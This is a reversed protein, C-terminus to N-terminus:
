SAGELTASRKVSDGLTRQGIAMLLPILACILVGVGLTQLVSPWQDSPARFLFGALVAGVNGGAGVIGAVAGLNGRHILPVIAYAAGNAMKVFLGLVLLAPVAVAVSGVRGFLLLFIGEGLLVAALWGIRAALGGRNGFRDALWGGLFRAFLNMAGFLGAIFGATAASLDFRDFFYTAAVNDMTLEIGFSAGYAIFLAWVRPDRCALWFGALETKRRPLKGAARLERFNGDPADQTLYYYAIGAALCALGALFMAGRWALLTSVGLAMLGAVLLPMVQQTVGGGLNGWGAAAANAAGVCKKSFMISTHFQTVVFSAGIAGILFRFLLLTEYSNALGVGMVPLSCLVLLWSYTLRPGFRDCLPGIILRALITASVSAVILNGVQWPELQLEERILPMLPALGFWAFFCTFFAIWACHFARMPPTRFNFLEIREAQHLFPPAASAQAEVDPM